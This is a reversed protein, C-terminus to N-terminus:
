LLTIEDPWRELQLRQMKYHLIVVEQKPDSVEWSILFMSM